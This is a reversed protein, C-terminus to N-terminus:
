ATLERIIRRANSLVNKSARPDGLKSGMCMTRVISGKSIRFKFHYNASPKVEVALGAAKFEDIVEDLTENKRAARM